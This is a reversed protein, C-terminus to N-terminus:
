YSTPTFGRTKDLFWTESPLSLVIISETTLKGFGLTFSMFVVLITLRTSGLTSKSFSLSSMM